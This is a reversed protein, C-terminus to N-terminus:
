DNAIKFAEEICKRIKPPIETSDNLSKALALGIEPKGINSKTSRRVLSLLKESFDEENRLARFEEATWGSGDSKKWFKSAARLYIEDSFTDEFEKEGVFHIQNTSIGDATLSELTFYRSKPSNKTDSDVMFLVKRNNDNLFKAFLRAGTGGEGNLIRVGAAQPPYGYMLNFLVPLAFWETLGEIVLFCRENLMVSNRLGMSDSIQYMFLDTLEPDDTQITRTRTMPGELEFHVIDTLPIRDILNLSHTCVIVNAREPQSIRKIIDFIKRQSLYDLHADPEDFAIIEQDNSTEAEETLLQERWEYVALTVRQRRGEGEKELDVPPRSDRKLLFRSTKFANTFDISPDIQIDSVDPCYRKLIPFFKDLDSRMEGEIQTSLEDLKGSYTETKIRTAFSNKLTSNIENQPDLADASEFVKIEPLNQYMKAPLQLWGEQQPQTAIWSRTNKVISEKIRRNEIPIAYEDAVALLEENKVQMLDKQFRIDAHVFTRFMFPSLNAEDKKFTRKINIEHDQLGLEQRENEKLLFVGEIVMEQASPVHEDKITFDDEDPLGKPNLFRSLIELASTKGANNQGTFITLKKLPIWGVQELCRFHEVRFKELKL